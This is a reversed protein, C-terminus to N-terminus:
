QRVSLNVPQNVVQLAAGDILAPILIPAYHPAAPGCRRIALVLVEGLALRQPVASLTVVLGADNSSSEPPTTVVDPSGEEEKEKSFVFLGILHSDGTLQGILHSVGTLQGILHSAGTLQGIM